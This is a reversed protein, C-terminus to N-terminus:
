HDLFRKRQCVAGDEEVDYGDNGIPGFAEREGSLASNLYNVQILRVEELAFFKKRLEVFDKVTKSLNDNEVTLFEVREKLQNAETRFQNATESATDLEQHAVQLDNTLNQFKNERVDMRLRMTAM